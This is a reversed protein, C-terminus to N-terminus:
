VNGGAAAGEAKEGEVAEGLFHGHATRGPKM